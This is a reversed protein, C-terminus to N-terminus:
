GTCVVRVRAKARRLRKKSKKSHTRKFAKKAARRARLAPPCAPNVVTFPWSRLTPGAIWSFSTVSLTGCPGYDYEGPYHSTVGIQVGNVLLPGGSDGHTICDYGDDDWACLMIAPVYTLRSYATACASDSGLILNIAKLRDDYTNPPTDHYNNHGWGLATGYSGWGNETGIPVPTVTSPRALFMVAIDNVKTPQSYQPHMAIATFGILEGGERTRAGIHATWKAPDLKDPSSSDPIVCHAATLVRKPTILSATCSSTGKDGSFAIRTVGPVYGSPPYYGRAIRSEVESAVATPTFVGLLLTICILRKLLSRERTRERAAM